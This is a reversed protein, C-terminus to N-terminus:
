LWPDSVTGRAVPWRNRGGASRAPWAACASQKRYHGRVGGPQHRVRRRASDRAPPWAPWARCQAIWRRGLLAPCGSLQQVARDPGANPGLDATRWRPRVCVRNQRPRHDGAASQSRPIALAVLRHACRRAAVGVQYGAEGNLAIIGGEGVSGTPSWLKEVVAAHDNPVYRVCLWVIIMALVLILMAGLVLPGMELLDGLWSAVRNGQAFMATFM